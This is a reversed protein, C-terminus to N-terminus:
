CKTEKLETNDGKAKEVTEFIFELLNSQLFFLIREKFNPANPKLLLIYSM